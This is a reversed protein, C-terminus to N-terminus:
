SREKGATFRYWYPRAAELGAVEVHVSHGLEPRALAQGKAVVTQFRDDAAVEWAVEVAQKPMGYGFELPRPALRTWIVFGDPAPDGAAVGLQFPYDAFVAQALAPRDSAALAFGGAAAGGTIALVRRRSLELRRSEIRSM